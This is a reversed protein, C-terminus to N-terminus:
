LPSPQANLTAFDQESIIRASFDSLGIIRNGKYAEPSALILRSESDGEKFREPYYLWDMRQKTTPSTFKSIQAWGAKSVYKQSGNAALEDLTKPVHDEDQLYLQLANEVQKLDNLRQTLIGKTAPGSHFPMIFGLLVIGTVIAFLNRWRIKM